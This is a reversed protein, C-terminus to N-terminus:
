QRSQAHDREAVLAVRGDCVAVGVEGQDSDAEHYAIGDVTETWLLERQSSHKRCEEHECCQGEALTPMPSAVRREEAMGDFDVRVRCEGVVVQPVRRLCITVVSRREGVVLRAQCV